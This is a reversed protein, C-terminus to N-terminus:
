WTSAPAPEFSRGGLLKPALWWGLLDFGVDLVTSKWQSGLGWRSIDRVEKGLYFGLVPWRAVKPDLPTLASLAGTLTLSGLTHSVENCPIDGNELSHRICWIEAGKFWTPDGQQAQMDAPLLLAFLVPLSRQVRSMWRCRQFVTPVTETTM